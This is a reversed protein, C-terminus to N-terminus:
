KEPSRGQLTIARNLLVKYKAVTDPGDLKSNLFMTSKLVKEATLAQDLRMLQMPLNDPDKKALLASM